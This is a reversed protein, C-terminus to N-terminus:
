QKNLTHKNIKTYKLFQMPWFKAIFSIFIVMVFTILFYTTHRNNENNCKNNYLGMLDLQESTCSNSHPPPTSNCITHTAFVVSPSLGSMQDQTVTPTPSQTDCSDCLGCAVVFGLNTCGFCDADVGNM